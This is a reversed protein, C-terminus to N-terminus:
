KVVPGLSRGPSFSFSNTKKKSLGLSKKSPDKEKITM